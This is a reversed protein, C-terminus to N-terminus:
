AEDQMEQQLKLRAEAKEVRQTWFSPNKIIKLEDVPIKLGELKCLEIINSMLASIKPQIYEVRKGFKNIYPLSGLAELLLTSVVKKDEQVEDIAYMYTRALKSVVDIVTPLTFDGFVEFRTDIRDVVSNIAKITAIKEAMLAKARGDTLEGIAIEKEVSDIEEMLEQEVAIEALRVEKEAKAEALRMKLEEIRSM